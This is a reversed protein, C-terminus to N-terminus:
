ELKQKDIEETIQLNSVNYPLNGFYAIPLCPSHNRDQHNNLLLCHIRFQGMWSNCGCRDFSFPSGRLCWVCKRTMLKETQPLLLTCCGYDCYFGDDFEFQSCHTHFAMGGLLLFKGSPAILICIYHSKSQISKNLVWVCVCVHFLFFFWWVCLCVCVCGVTLWNKFYLCIGNRIKWKKETKLLSRAQCLFLMCRHDGPLNKAWYAISMWPHLIRFWVLARTLCFIIIYLYFRNRFSDMYYWQIHVIHIIVFCITNIISFFWKCTRFRSKKSINLFQGSPILPFLM